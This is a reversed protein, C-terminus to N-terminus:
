CYSPCGANTLTAYSLNATTLNANSLNANTLTAAQFNAGTLNQGAFSWNTMDNDYLHIGYLDLATYSATSYLQSATLNTVSFDAGIVIANTLNANTLTSGNLPASTLNANTLTANTLTAYSLNATTLNAGILYAQTLDLSSLNASPVASVGSGGPCVTSSQYIGQSPNSPNVYAWEYINAQVQSAGSLLLFVSVLIKLNWTKVALNNM